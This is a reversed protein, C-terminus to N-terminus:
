AALKAVRTTAIASRTGFNVNFTTWEGIATSRIARIQYTIQSTGAEITDDIFRKQGTTGLFMLEGSLGIRRHVEYITGVAGRPHKCKWQLALVGRADIAFTFKTPTGPQGIPSAKAPPSISALPYIGNGDLAAQTRIQSIIQAGTTNMADLAMQCRLTASRAADQAQAQEMLALRAAQTQDALTAIMEPTTGIQESHESWAELHTIFFQVQPQKAKPVVRM